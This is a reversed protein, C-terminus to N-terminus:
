AERLGLKVVEERFDDLGVGLNFLVQGAIGERERILGLLLHETGLYHHGLDRAEALGYEVAAKSRPTMPLKGSEPTNPGPVLILDIQQGITQPDVNLAKLVTVAVGSGEEIIGLLIHETGIYEHRYRRAAKNALRIAKTAPKSALGGM